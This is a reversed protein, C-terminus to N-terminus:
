GESGGEGEGTHADTADATGRTYGAKRKAVKAAFEPHLLAVAPSRGDAPPKVDSRKFIHHTGAQSEMPSHGQENTLAGASSIAVEDRAKTETRVM